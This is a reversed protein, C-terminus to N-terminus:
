EMLTAHRREIMSRLRGPASSLDVCLSITGGRKGAGLRSVEQILHETPIGIRAALASARGKWAVLLIEPDDTPKHSM